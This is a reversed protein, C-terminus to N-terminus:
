DLAIRLSTIQYLLFVATVDNTSVAALALLTAPLTTDLAPETTFVALLTAPLTAPLTTDLAPETTFVALLTAPLTAPLTTDLAPETTFVALVTTDEALEIARM